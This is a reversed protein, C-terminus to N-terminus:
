LFLLTYDPRIARNVPSNPVIACYIWTGPIRKISYRWEHYLEPIIEVVWKSPFM